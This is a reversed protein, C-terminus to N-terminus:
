VSWLFCVSGCMCRVGCVGMGSMLVCWVVCVWM